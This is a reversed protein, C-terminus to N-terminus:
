QKLNATKRHRLIAAVSFVALLLPVIVLWSLESVTPTSAPTPTPSATASTSPEPITVTQGASWDSVNGVVEYLILPNIFQLNGSVAQLRFDIQSGYPVDIGWSSGYYLWIENTQSKGLWGTANDGWITIVTESGSSAFATVNYGNVPSLSGWKSSFHGKYGLIYAYTPPVNKVTFTINFSYVTYGLNTVNAGTYPDTTCTTPVVYSGSITSVSFVPTSPTQAFAPKVMILSLSSVAIMLILVSALGKSLCGM